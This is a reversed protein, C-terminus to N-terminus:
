TLEAVIPGITAKLKNKIRENTGIVVIAAQQYSKRDPFKLEKALATLVESSRGPFEKVIAALDEAEVLKRLRAMTAPYPSEFDIQIRDVQAIESRSPIASIVRERAQRAAIYSAMPALKDDAKLLSLAKKKAENLFDKENLGLTEAQRSAVAELVIPDFYLGEVSYAPIPYIGQSQLAAIAQKGMGDGDILGYAQIRHLKELSRIAETSRRVEKSTEKPRVSVNPFLASYLPNDLSRREDGEIFLIKRRAGILDNVIADPIKEVDDILDLDWAKV